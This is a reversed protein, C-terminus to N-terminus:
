SDDSLSSLLAVVEVLAKATFPKPLRFLAEGLGGSPASPLAASCVLVPISRLWGKQDIASLFEAGNMVPMMLDLIIVSPQSNTELLLDLAVKGNAACAVRFGHFSLIDRMGERVDDDDEVILV